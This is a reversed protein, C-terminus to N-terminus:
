EARADPDDRLERDFRLLDRQEAELRSDASDFVTEGSAVQGLDLRQRVVHSALFQRKINRFGFFLDGGEETIPADFERALERLAAEVRSRKVKRRGARAQLYNVTRDLSVVGKGALATEFVLGLAFRRLSATQGFRFSTRRAVARILRRAQYFIRTSSLARLWASGSTLQMPDEYRVWAPRPERSGFRGHASVMLEPFAWVVHGDWSPHPEGGYCDALRKMESETDVLSLGTHEMLEALSLVGARVRILQLTRRDFWARRVDILPPTRGPGSRAPDVTTVSTPSQGLHFIVEGSDSVRVHGIGDRILRDLSREVDDRPLGALTVIDGLTGEGGM